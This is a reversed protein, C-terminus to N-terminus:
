WWIQKGDEYTFIREEKGETLCRLWYMTESPVNKYNLFYDNAMKKGSSVWGNDWYFLEYENGPIICNTDNKPCFRIRSIPRPTEFDLRFRRGNQYTNLDGDFANAFRGKLTGNKYTRHEVKKLVGSSDQYCEIEALRIVRGDDPAILQIYQLTDPRKLDIQQMYFPYYDINHLVKADKFDPDNAGEIRCGKFDIVQNAAYSFLPFKRILKMDIRKETNCKFTRKLGSNEILFPDGFPKLGSQYTMPMLMVNKGMDKFRANGYWNLKAFAVPVWQNVDFTALYAMTKDQLFENGIEVDAVDLYQSTVDVMNPRFLNLYIEEKPVRSVLNIIAPQETWTQRFMKPITKEYQVYLGFPMENEKFVHTSKPDMAANLNDVLNEPNNDNKLLKSVQKKRNALGVYAHQSSPRNGWNPIYDYTAPAGAARLHYIVYRCMSACEGEKSIDLWSYNAELPFYSRINVKSSITNYTDSIHYHYLSDLNKLSPRLSILRKHTLYLSDRWNDFIESTLKHPLIYENFDNFSISDKWSSELLAKLALNNNHTLKEKSVYDKDFIEHYNTNNLIGLSKYLSDAILNLDKQSTRKLHSFVDLYSLISDINGTLVTTRNEFNSNSFQRTSELKKLWLADPQKIKENNCGLLISLIIASFVTKKIM